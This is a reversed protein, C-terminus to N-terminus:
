DDGNSDDADDATKIPERQDATLTAMLAKRYQGSTDAKVWDELSKGDGFLNGFEDRVSALNKESLTVILRILASDDTGLGKMSKRLKEGWFQTPETAHRLTALIAAEFKGSLEKQCVSELTKSHAREYKNAILAVQPFSRSSFIEIFKAEDTGWKKEGAKYLQEVDVDAQGEDVDHEPRLNELCAVLYREHDGSTDDAIRTVLSVDYMQQYADRIAQLEPGTRTCIIENLLEDNTGMGTVAKYIYSADLKAPPSMLAVLVKEYKGSVESKIRDILNKGFESEYAQVIIQRQANTRSTILMRLKNDNTGIGAMAGNLFQADAAADFEDDGVGRVTGRM